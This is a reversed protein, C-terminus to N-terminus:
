RGMMVAPFIGEPGFWEELEAVAKADLMAEGRPLLEVYANDIQARTLWEVEGFRLPERIIRSLVGHCEHRSVGICYVADPSIIESALTFLQSCIRVLLM